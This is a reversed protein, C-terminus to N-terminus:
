PWYGGAARSEDVVGNGGPCDARWQSCGPDVGSFGGKEGPSEADGSFSGPHDTKRGSINGVVDQLDGGDSSRVVRMGADSHGDIRDGSQGGQANGGIWGRLDRRGENRRVARARSGGAVRKSGGDAM